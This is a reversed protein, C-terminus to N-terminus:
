PRLIQPCGVYAFFSNQLSQCQQGHLLSPGLCYINYNDVVINCKVTHSSVYKLIGSKGASDVVSKLSQELSILKEPEIDGNKSLDLLTILDSIYGSIIAHQPIQSLNRVVAGLFRAKAAAFKLKNETIPQKMLKPCHALAICMNMFATHRM